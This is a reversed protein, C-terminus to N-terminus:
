VTGQTTAGAAGALPTANAGAAALEEPTRRYFRNALLSEVALVVLLAMMMLPLLEMPPRSAGSLANLLSTSQGARAVRGKGLVAELQEDPVRELNTEESPLNLSFGAVPTKKGDLVLYNGPQVAERLLLPGGREPLRVTRNGSTGPGSLTFPGEAGAPLTVQPAQGCRFNLEPTSAEGGLYRCVRDILVLGFSSDQWFNNWQVDSGPEVYRIDLPSTFLVVRGREVARELLAPNRKADEYRAIAQSGKELPGVQWYRRVFPRLEDRNFDPDGGKGWAVFPAMLPHGNNVSFRQWLVPEKPAAIRVLPAPLLAKGGKNFDELRPLMEEGGPVIALSGGNKVYQALAGWVKESLEAPQFLCVVPYRGLEKAQELSGFECTFSRTAAHVAYWVRAVEPIRKEGVRVTRAAAADDVLTLLRRGRRVLFTAYRTNNCDLFDRTGLAVKVQYPVDPPGTKPPEPAVLEAFDITDGTFQGKLEVPREVSIDSGEVQCTLKNRHGGPTGRIHVRVTFRTGPPVVAPVVEVQDIGLDSPKEVGVDVFLVQVGEPVAPKLGSPDWCAHTRDSFVYLIRPPAEEGGEQELLRLARDIPRNLAGARPDTRLADIRTRAAAISTAADAGEEGSGLVRVSSDAHLEGLLDRARAKAEDLRSVGGVAYDMSASVDFLLVVNAARDAGSLPRGAFLRPRALAFCLGAVVAIRLLMLLLHQLNLKRQNVRYRQRLFRFAPFALRKPKQRMILHPVVPLGALVLGFLLYPHIFNM